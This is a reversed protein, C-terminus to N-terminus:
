SHLYKKHSTSDGVTAVYTRSTFSIWILNSLHLHIMHTQSINIRNACYNNNEEGGAKQKVFINKGFQLGSVSKGIVQKVNSWFLTDMLNLLVVSHCPTAQPEAAPFPKLLPNMTNHWPQSVATEGDGSWAKGKEIPHRYRIISSHAARSCPLQVAVCAFSAM